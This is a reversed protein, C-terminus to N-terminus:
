GHVDRGLNLKILTQVSKGVIEEVHYLIRCAHYFRRHIHELVEPENKYREVSSNFRERLSIIQDDAVLKDALYVIEKETLPQSPEWSCDMHATIIASVEPYAATLKAGELPHNPKLRAIDHLLASAKLLDLNLHLGAEELQKGLFVSLWAVMECHKIVKEPTNNDRLLEYCEFETPTPAYGYCKLIRRYDEPTDMDLLVGQDEMSVELADGQYHELLARLGGEGTWSLISDVYCRSILPPHGRKGRYVPYVIGKHEMNFAEYLRHLTDEHILPNDVPLLFFGEVEPGLSRVGAKVSSFMGEVFNENYICQVRLVDCVPILEGSKHGLVVRIDKFGAEQFSRVAIEMVSAPGLPLLPKFSKMRSSFGAALIIAAIKRKRPEGTTATKIGKV